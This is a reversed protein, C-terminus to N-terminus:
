QEADDITYKTIKVLNTKESFKNPMIQDIQSNGIIVATKMQRQTAPNDTQSSSSYTPPTYQGMYQQTHSNGAIITSYSQHRYQMTTPQSPVPARHTPTSSLQNAAQGTTLQYRTQDPHSPQTTGHLPPNLPLNTTQATPHSNVGQYM